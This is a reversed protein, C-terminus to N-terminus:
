KSHEPPCAPCNHGIGHDARCELCDMNHPCDASDKGKCEECIKNARRCLWWSTLSWRGSGCFAVCIAAAAYIVNTGWASIYHILFPQGLPNPGTVKYIAVVTMVTILFAAVWVFAGLILALGSIVESTAVVYAWFASLNISNFYAIVSDMSRFKSIGHVLFFSGLALRLVLLGISKNHLYRHCRGFVGNM